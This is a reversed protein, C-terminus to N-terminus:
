DRTPEIARLIYQSKRQQAMNHWQQQQKPLLVICIHLLRLTVAADAVAGNAGVCAVAVGVFLKM